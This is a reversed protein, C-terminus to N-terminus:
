WFVPRNLSPKTKFTNFSFAKLLRQFMNGRAFSLAVFSTDLIRLMLLSSMIAKADGAGFLIAHSPRKRVQRVMCTVEEVDVVLIGSRRIGLLEVSADGRSEVWLVKRVSWFM